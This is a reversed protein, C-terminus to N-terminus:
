LMVICSKPKERSLLPPRVAFRVYTCVEKNLKRAFFDQTRFIEFDLMLEFLQM